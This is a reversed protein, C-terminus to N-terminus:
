ARVMVAYVALALQTSPADMSDIVELTLSGRQIKDKPKIDTGTPFYAIYHALARLQEGAVNESPMHASAIIRCKVNAAVVSTALSTGGRSNLTASPRVIDANSTFNDAVTSRMNLLQIDTLPRM